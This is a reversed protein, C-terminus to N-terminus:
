SGQNFGIVLSLFGLVVSLIIVVIALYKFFSLTANIGKLERYTKVKMILDIDENRINESVIYFNVIKNENDRIPRVNSPLKENKAIMDLYKNKEEVSCIRSDILKEEYLLQKLVNM